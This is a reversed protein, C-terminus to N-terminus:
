CTSESPAFGFFVLHCPSATNMRTERVNVAKRTYRFSVALLPWVGAPIAPNRCLGRCLVVCPLSGGGTGDARITLGAPEGARSPPEIGALRESM